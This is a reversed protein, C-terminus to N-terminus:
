EIEYIKQEAAVSDGQKCYVNKVIGDKQVYFINQMKMAEIVCAEQGASVHEFIVQPADNQRGTYLSNLRIKNKIDDCIDKM